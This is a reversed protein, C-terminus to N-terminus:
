PGSPEELQGTYPNILIRVSKGQGKLYNTWPQAGAQKRANQDYLWIESQSRETPPVYTAAPPPYPADASLLLPVIDAPRPGDYEELFGADGRALMPPYVYNVPHPYYFVADRNHRQVVAVRRTVVQGTPSFLVTFTTVDANAYLAQNLNTEDAANKPASFGAALEVGQPFKVPERGPAAVFLASTDYADIWPLSARFRSKLTQLDATAPRPPYPTVPWAADKLPHIIVAFTAGEEAQRPIRVGAPAFTPPYHYQQFRVGVVHGRAAAEARASALVTRLMTRAAGVQVGGTLARLSAIAVGLIIAIIGAVVLMEVLTFAPRRMMPGATGLVSHPASLASRRLPAAVSRRLSAAQPRAARGKANTRACEANM